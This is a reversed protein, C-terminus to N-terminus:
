GGGKKKNVLGLGWPEELLERPCNWMTGCHRLINNVITMALM